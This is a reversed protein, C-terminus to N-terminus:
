NIRGFVFSFVRRFTMKDLIILTTVPPVSVFAGNFLLTMM